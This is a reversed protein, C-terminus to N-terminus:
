VPAHVKAAPRYSGKAPNSPGFADVFQRRSGCDCNRRPKPNTDGSRKLGPYAIAIDTDACGHTVPVADAMSVIGGGGSDAVVVM